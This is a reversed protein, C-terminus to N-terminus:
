ELRLIIHWGYKSRVPDYDAMGTEGVALKFSVDGFSRVMKSRATEKQSPPSAIAEVGFNAMKYVSRLHDDSYQKALAAFDEGKRARALLEVALKEAEARTRTVAPDTLASGKFSILIHRVKVRDPEGDPKRTPFAEQHEATKRNLSGRTAPSENNRGSRFEMFDPSLSQFAIATAAMLVVSVATMARARINM